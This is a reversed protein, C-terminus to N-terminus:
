GFFFFLINEYFVDLIFSIFWLDVNLLNQEFFRLQHLFCNSPFILVLKKFRWDTTLDMNHSIFYPINEALYGISIM